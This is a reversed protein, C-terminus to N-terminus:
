GPLQQFLLIDGFNLSAAVGNTIFGSLEVQRYTHPDETMLHTAAIRGALNSSGNQILTLLEATSRTTGPTNAVLKAALQANSDPHFGLSVEILFRYDCGMDYFSIGRAFLDKRRAIAPSWLVFAVRAVEEARAGFALYEDAFLLREVRELTDIGEAGV